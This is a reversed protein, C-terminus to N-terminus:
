CVEKIEVTKARAELFGYVRNPAGELRMVQSYITKPDMQTKSDSRRAIKIVERLFDNSFFFV